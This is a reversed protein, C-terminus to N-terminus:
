AGAEPADTPAGDPANHEPVDPAHEVDKRKVVCVVAAPDTM